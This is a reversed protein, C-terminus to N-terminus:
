MRRTCLAQYANNGCAPCRGNTICEAHWHAQCYHRPAPCKMCERGDQIHRLCVYCVLGKPATCPRQAEILLQTMTVRCQPCGNGLHIHGLSNRPMCDVHAAVNCHICRWKERLAIDELCIVCEGSGADGSRTALPTRSRLRRRSAPMKHRPSSATAGSVLSPEGPFGYHLLNPETPRM